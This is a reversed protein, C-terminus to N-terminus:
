ISQVIDLKVPVSKGINAYLYNYVDTLFSSIGTTVSTYNTDDHGTGSTSSDYGNYQIGNLTLIAKDGGVESPKHSTSVFNNAGTKSKYWSVEFINPNDCSGLNLTTSNDYGLYQSGSYTTNDYAVVINGSYTQYIKPKATIIIDKDIIIEIDDYLSDNIYIDHMYDNTYSSRDYQISLYIRIYDNRNVTFSETYQIGNYM